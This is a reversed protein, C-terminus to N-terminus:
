KVLIVHYNEIELSILKMACPWEVTSLTTFALFDFNIVLIDPLVLTFIQANISTEAM